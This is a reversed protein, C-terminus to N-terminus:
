TAYTHLTNGLLKKEQKYRVQVGSLQMQWSYRILNQDVHACGKGNSWNSDAMTQNEGYAKLSVNIGASLPETNTKSHYSSM